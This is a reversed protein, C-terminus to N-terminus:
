ALACLAPPVLFRRHYQPVSQLFHCQHASKCLRDATVPLAESTRMSQEIDYTRIKCLQRHQPDPAGAREGTGKGQAAGWVPRQVGYRARPLTLVRLTRNVHVVGEDGTSPYPNKGTSLKEVLFQHLAARRNSQRGMAFLFADESIINVLAVLRVVQHKKANAGHEIM